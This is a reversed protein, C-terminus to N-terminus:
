FCGVANNLSFLKHVAISPHWGMRATNPIQGSLFTAKNPFEVESCLQIQRRNAKVFCIGASGIFPAASIRNTDHKAFRGNARVSSNLDHVVTFPYRNTM